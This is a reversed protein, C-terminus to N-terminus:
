GLVLDVGKESGGVFNWGSGGYSVELLELAFEDKDIRIARTVIFIHYLSVSCTGVM